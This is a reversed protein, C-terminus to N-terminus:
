STTFYFTYTENNITIELSIDRYGSAYDFEIDIIIENNTNFSLNHNLNNIIGEARLEYEINKLNEGIIKFETEYSGMNREIHLRNNPLNPEKYEGNHQIKVNNVVVETGGLTGDDNIEFVCEGEVYDIITIETDDYEKKACWSGNTIALGVKGKLVAITGEKPITGKFDLKEGNFFSFNKYESIFEKEKEKLLNSLHKNEASKILGYASNKFAEKKADNIIKVVFVTTISLIIALIIIVALLEILTFGKKNKLM